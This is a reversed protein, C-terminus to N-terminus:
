NEVIIFDVIYTMFTEVKKKGYRNKLIAVHRQPQNLSLFNLLMGYNQKYPYFQVVGKKVPCVAVSMSKKIQDLILKMFVDMSTSDFLCLIIVQDFVVKSNKVDIHQFHLYPRSIDELIRLRVGPSYECPNEETNVDCKIKM